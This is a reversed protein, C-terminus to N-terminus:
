LTHILSILVYILYMYSFILHDQTKRIEKIKGWFDAKELPNNRWNQHM